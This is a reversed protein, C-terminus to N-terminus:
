LPHQSSEWLYDFFNEFGAFLPHGQTIQLMKANQDNKPGIISSVFMVNDFLLIKFIPKSDYCKVMFNENEEEMHKLNDLARRMSKRIGEISSHGLEGALEGTIYQSEPSRVLVEISLKLERERKTQYLGRLLSGRITLIKVKRKANRFAEQINSECAEQNRYEIISSSQKGQLMRLISELSRVLLPRLRGDYVRRIFLFLMVLVFLIVGAADLSVQASYGFRQLVIDAAASLGLVIVGAIVNEVLSNM